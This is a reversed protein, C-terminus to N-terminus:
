RRRGADGAGQCNTQRGNGCPLVGPERWRGKRARRANRRKGCSDAGEKLGYTDSFTFDTFLQHCLVGLIHIGSCRLTVTHPECEVIVGVCGFSFGSALSSLAFIAGQRESISAFDSMRQGVKAPSRLLPQWQDDVGWGIRHFTPILRGYRPVARRALSRASVRVASYAGSERSTRRVRTGSQRETNSLSASRTRVGRLGLIITTPSM